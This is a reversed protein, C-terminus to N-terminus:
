LYSGGLVMKETYVILIIYSFRDWLKMEFKQGINQIFFQDLLLNAVKIKVIVSSWNSSQKEYHDEAIDPLNM